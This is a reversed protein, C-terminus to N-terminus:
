GPAYNAFLYDMNPTTAQSIADYKGGKKVGVGDLICLLVPKQM